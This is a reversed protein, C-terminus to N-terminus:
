TTWSAKSRKSPLKVWNSAQIVQLVVWENAQLGMLEKDRAGKAEVVVPQLATAKGVTLGEMCKVTM